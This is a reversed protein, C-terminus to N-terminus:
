PKIVRARLKASGTLAPADSAPGVMVQYEGADLRWGPRAPDYFALLRPDATISVRRTEGPKLDVKSFGILRQAKKTPTSVLYVQAAEKGARQGTNTVDFSVVLDRGGVVAANAYAFSTYSLGYGFPFMPKRGERAYWRYGVDSGVGDYDVDIPTKPPLGWGPIPKLEDPNPFSVSLKGSPNVKGTLIDAIADGGMAGPYWAEVVAAAKALWPMALPGNNELVVVTNPNAAAVAAILEDQGDPLTLDPVDQGETAWQTAFVIAVDAGRAAAAAESPYGGSVFSVTAGPMAARLARLPPSAHFVMSAFAGGLEGEGGVPVRLVEAETQVVNSSGGGSLVGGDAHGGIVVIRRAGAALPLVGRSNKLLVIGEEATRRSVAADAAKDIPAGRQAPQEFLGASFMSRLIRRTMDSVREAPIRGSQVAEKLPADFFVMPDLQQGSQQDLGHMAAELSPVAGWDSMVWGKFGWDRKLVQNLLVDSDCAYPGNVRNYACMISGPQGREVAIEFALLDSERMAAESIRVNVSHRLTEQSNIAYHKLTSVIHQSQTGRVAEGAMVGALLPDEGLYEFNRGNRPERVLDMGGGLLVNLGKSWAEHGIVAGSAYALEPNFTSATLLGSPFATGGDDKRVSVPNTVGLSADTEQLAPVGLRPVGPIYGAGGLAESPVGPVLGRLAMPGHLMSLKEDLTMQAEVLRAREDPSLAPNMWPQATEALAAGALLTAALALTASRIAHM